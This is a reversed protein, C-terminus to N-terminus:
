ESQTQGEKLQSVEASTLLKGELLQKRVEASKLVVEIEESTYVLFLNNRAYARATGEDDGFFMDKLISRAEEAAEDENRSRTTVDASKEREKATPAHKDLIKLGLKVAEDKKMNGQSDAITQQAEQRCQQIEEETLYRKLNQVRKVEFYATVGLVGNLTALGVVTVIVSSLVAQQIRASRADKATSSHRWVSRQINRPVFKTLRFMLVISYRYVLRLALAFLTVKDVLRNGM